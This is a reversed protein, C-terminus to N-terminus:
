KLSNILSESVKMLENKDKYSFDLATWDAVHTANTNANSVCGSDSSNLVKITSNTTDLWKIVNNSSDYILKDLIGTFKNSYETAKTFGLEKFDSYIKGDILSDQETLSDNYNKAAFEFDNRLMSYDVDLSKSKPQPLSLLTEKTGKILVSSMPDELTFNNSNYEIEINLDEEVTAKEGESNITINVLTGNMAVDFKESMWDKNLYEWKNIDLTAQQTVTGNTSTSISNNSTIPQYWATSIPEPTLSAVYLHLGMIQLIYLAYRVNDKNIDSNSDSASNGIGTLLFKSGILDTTGDCSINVGYKTNVGVSWEPEIGVTFNGKSNKFAIIALSNKSDSTCLIGLTPSTSVWILNGGWLSSGRQAKFSAGEFLYGGKSQKQSTPWQVQFVVPTISLKNSLLTNAFYSQLRSWDAADTDENNAYADFAWDNDKQEPYTINGMDKSASDNVGITGFNKVKPRLRFKKSDGPFHNLVIVPLKSIRPDDGNLYKTDFKNFIIKLKENIEDWGSNETLKPYFTKNYPVPIFNYLYTRNFGKITKPQANAYTYLGIISYYDFSNSSEPREQPKTINNETVYYKFLNNYNFTLQNWTSWMNNEGIAESFFLIKPDPAEIKLKQYERIGIYKSKAPTINKSVFNSIDGEHDPSDTLSHHDEIDNNYLNSLIKTTFADEEQNGDTKVNFPNLSITLQDIAEKVWKDREISQFQSETSYFANMAKSAIIPAGVARVLTGLEHKKTDNNFKKERLEIVFLYIGSEAKINNLELISQGVLDINGTDLIPTKVDTDESPNEIEYEYPEWQVSENGGPGLKYLRWWVVYQDTIIPAQITFNLTVGNDDVTYKFVDFFRINNINFLEDLTFELETKHNDYVVITKDGFKVFPIARIKIVQSSTVEINEATWNFYYNNVNNYTAIQSTKLEIDEGFAPQWGQEESIKYQFRVYLGEYNKPVGSDNAEVGYQEQNWIEDSVAIQAQVTLDINVTNEESEESNSKSVFYRPVNVDDLYLNFSDIPAIRSKYSIWGPIEWKVYDYSDTESAEIDVTHTTILSQDIEYLEKEESLVYFNISQLYGSANKEVYIYYRDGTVLKFKETTSYLKVTEKKSLDTYFVSLNPTEKSITELDEYEWSGVKPTIVIGDYDNLSNHDGENNFITQPSPYSGIQCKKDVPNYSVIYIINGYEKIGVPIYNSDLQATALKYNGMDNQLIYENGNYTLITGNICDTLINNPTTLPHLDMNLGGTFSNITQQRADM